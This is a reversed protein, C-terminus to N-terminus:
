AAPPAAPRGMARRAASALLSVPHILGVYVPTLLRSRAGRIRASRVYAAGVVRGLAIASRVPGRGQLCVDCLERLLWPPLVSRPPDHVVAARRGVTRFLRDEIVSGGSGSRLQRLVADPAQAGVLDRALWLAAHVHCATGCARARQVLGDWDIQDGYRHITYAIDTLGRLRGVVRDTLVAHLALHLLLDEPSLVLTEGSALRAPRARRWLDEVPLRTAHPPRIIHHHIEV